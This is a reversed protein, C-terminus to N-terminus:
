SIKLCCVKVFMSKPQSFGYNRSQMSCFVNMAAIIMKAKKIEKTAIICTKSTALALGQIPSGTGGESATGL